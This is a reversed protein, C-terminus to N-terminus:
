LCLWIIIGQRLNFRENLLDNTLILWISILLLYTKTDTLTASSFSYIAVSNITISLFAVEWIQTKVNGSPLTLFSPLFAGWILLFILCNSFIKM